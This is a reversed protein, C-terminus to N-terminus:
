LDEVDLTSINLKYKKHAFQEAQKILVSRKPCGISRINEVFDGFVLMYYGVGSEEIREREVSFCGIVHGAPIDYMAEEKVSESNMALEGQMGSFVHKNVAEASLTRDIATEVYVAYVYNKESGVIRNVPMPFYAALCPVLSACVLSFEEIEILYKQWPGFSKVRLVMHPYMSLEDNKALMAFELMNWKRQFGFNFILKENRSDGRFGLVSQNKIIESTAAISYGTSDGSTYIEYDM